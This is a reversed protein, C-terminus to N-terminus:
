KLLLLRKTQIFQGAKIQYLYVGSPLNGADFIVKYTGATFTDETLVAIRRGVLDYVTIRVELATPIAFQITTRPNFPNPYNQDLRFKLPLEDKAPEVITLLDSVKYYFGARHIYTSDASIGILTQGLTGRISNSSDAAIIRATGNSFTSHLISNQAVAPSYTCCMSLFGIIIIKHQM